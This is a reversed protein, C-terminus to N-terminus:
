QIQETGVDLNTNNLSLWIYILKALEIYLWKWQHGGNIMINTGAFVIVTQHKNVSPVARNLLVSNKMYKMDNQSQLVEKFKGKYMDDM